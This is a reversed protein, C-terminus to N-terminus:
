MRPQPKLPSKSIQAAIRTVEPIAHAFFAKFGRCLYNLGPEGDPTLILRNKPCEGWCDTLYPCRRCYQPLTKSKAHGFVAQGPSYVMDGLQGTKLNGLRYEPYVYHDCSYVSGDNEVAVARGCNESYVCMQSPLGLHQAVLTEIHNVMVKGIDQALWRDFVKCLFYGWDDPDVSWDTVISNPTGPRAAPDGDRPLTATDWRQPAVRTFDRHEVIPIFQIYNSNLEQRLFRYVDLPKRGNFRHVCTLTNFPVGHRQLLKAAAFVKDFTPQNGKTVRYHDHIERPGDISLGVLFRNAKLFEAWEEDLLVGNTQLDNSIKQGPKAHKKELEVVKRFFDLGLLTPEGGQWTFVVENGTIGEIYQKIHLELIEDPMRGAGPGGPLTAKSLYYCYTCDLNCTSSAPKAMAHFNRPLTSM